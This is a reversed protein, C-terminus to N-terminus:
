VEAHWVPESWFKYRKHSLHHSVEPRTSFTLQYSVKSCAAQPTFHYPMNLMHVRVGVVTIGVTTVPILGM